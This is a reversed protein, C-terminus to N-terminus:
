GGHAIWSSLMELVIRGGPRHEEEARALGSFSGQQSILKGVGQVEVQQLGVRKQAQAAIGAEQALSDICMRPDLTFRHNDVLNLLQRNKQIFHM